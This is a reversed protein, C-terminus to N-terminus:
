KKVWKLLIYAALIGFGLAAILTGVNLLLDLKSLTSEFHTLLEDLQGTQSQLERFIDDSYGDYM